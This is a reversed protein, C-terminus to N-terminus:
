MVVCMRMRMSVPLEDSRVSCELPPCGQLRRGSRRSVDPSAGGNRFARPVCQILRVPGRGGVKLGNEGAGGSAAAPGTGCACGTADVRGSSGVGCACAANRTPTGATARRGGADCTPRQSYETITRSDSAGSGRRRAGVLAGGPAGERAACGRGFYIHTLPRGVIAWLTGACCIRASSAPRIGAESWRMWAGVGM